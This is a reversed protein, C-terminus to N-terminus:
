SLQGVEDHYSDMKKMVREISFEDQLDHSIFGFNRAKKM